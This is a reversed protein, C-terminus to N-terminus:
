KTSSKVLCEVDEIERAIREEWTWFNQHSYNKALKKWKALEKESRILKLIETVFQKDSDILIGAKGNGLFDATSGNNLSIVALGSLMSEFLPNGANSLDYTGLYIDAGNLYKGVEKNPVGGAFFVNKEIKLERAMQELESKRDGDGVIVLYVDKEKKLVEALANLARDTRKWYTLRHVTILIKASAPINYKKHLFDRYKPQYISKNVGNMWFRVKEKPVKFFELVKDGMTGDNTMIYLNSNLRFALRHYWYWAWRKHNRTNKELLPYLITGQFRSVQLRGRRFFTAIKSAVIGQVEYGYIVDFNQKKDLKIAERAAVVIFMIVDRLGNFVSSRRALAEFPLFFKVIKFKKTRYIEEYYYDASKQKKQTLFVVEHGALAYGELTKKISQAGKSKVELASIILIKM